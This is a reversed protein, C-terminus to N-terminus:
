AAVGQIDNAPVAFLNVDEIDNLTLSTTSVSGVLGIAGGKNGYLSKCISRTLSKLMGDIERTRAEFFAGRNSGSQKMVKRAISISAYDDVTTVNFKVYSNTKKNGLAVAVDASRSMPIGYQVPQVYVDGSLSTMKPLM